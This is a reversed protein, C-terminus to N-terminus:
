SRVAGLAHLLPLPDEADFVSSIAAVGDAGAALCASAGTADIGGLAILRPANPIGSLRAAAASLGDTGLAPNGKREALIPSLLVLDCDVEAVAEPRHCARVVFADPLLSRARASDLSAEGLHVGDAGLLLALDLRDNVIVLQGAARATAVLRQGISLLARTSLSRERLDIAVSGPRAADAVRQWKELVAREGRRECDTVVILRLGGFVSM